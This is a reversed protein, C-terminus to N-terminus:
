RIMSLRREAVRSSSKNTDFGSGSSGFGAFSSFRHLRKRQMDDVPQEEVVRPSATPMTSFRKARRYSFDDHREEDFENRDDDDDHHEDLQTPISVVVPENAQAKQGHLADICGSSTMSMNHPNTENTYTSSGTCSPTQFVYEGDVYVANSVFASRRHRSRTYRKELRLIELKAQIKQMLSPM